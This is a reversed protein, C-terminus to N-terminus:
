CLCAHWVGGGRVGPQACRPVQRTQRSRSGRTCGSATSSALAVQPPADLARERVGRRWGLARVRSALAGASIAVEAADIAKRTDPSFRKDLHRCRWACRNVVRAARRCALSSCRRV